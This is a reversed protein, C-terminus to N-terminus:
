VCVAYEYWNLITTEEIAYYLYPYDEFGSSFGCLNGDADLPSTLIRPEGNQFGHYSVFGMGAAFVIFIALCFLDTCRRNM